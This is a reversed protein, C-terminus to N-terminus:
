STQQDASHHIQFAIPSLNYPHTQKFLLIKHVPGLIYTTSLVTKISQISRKSAERLKWDFMLIFNFNTHAYHVHIFTFHQNEMENWKKTSKKKPRTTTIGTLIYYYVREHRFIIYIVTIIITTGLIHHIISFTITKISYWSRKTSPNTKSFFYWKKFASYFLYYENIPAEIISITTTNTNETLIHSCQNWFSNM